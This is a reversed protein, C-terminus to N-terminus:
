RAVLSGRRTGGGAPPPLPPLGQWAALGEGLLPTGAPPSPYPACHGAPRPRALAQSGGLDWVPAGLSRPSGEPEGGGGGAAWCGGAGGEAGGGSGERRRHCSFLAGGRTQVCPIYKNKCKIELSGHLIPKGSAAGRAGAEGGFLPLGGSLSLGLFFAFRLTPNRTRSMTKFACRRRKGTPGSFFVCAFESVWVRSRQLTYVCLACVSVCHSCKKRPSTM